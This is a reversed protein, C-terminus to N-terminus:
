GLHELPSMSLEDNYGQFPCIFGNLTFSREGEFTGIQLLNFNHSFNQDGGNGEGGKQTQVL